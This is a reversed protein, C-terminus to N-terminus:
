RLGPLGGSRNRLPENPQGGAPASAARLRSRFRPGFIEAGANLMQAQAMALIAKGCGQKCEILVEDHIVPLWGPRRM